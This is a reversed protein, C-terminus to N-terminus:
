RMYFLTVNGSQIFTGGATCVSEVRYVYVDQAAKTGTNRMIGNWGKSPDNAAFNQQEFVVQGWRNFIIFSKVQSLGKGRVMLVDNIGDGDPSFANPVYVQENEKCLVKYSITDTAICGYFTEIDLRYLIDNNITAVPTACNNCSLNSNPTWTYRKIPGNTITPNFPIQTGATVTSGTGLELTPLYGVAVTVFATDTFCNDDDFGIVQYTTTSAPRAIPNPINTASLGVAPSWNYRRAGSAFLQASENQPFCITDNPSVNINFPQVVTILVTDNATCGFQNTGTVIYATTQIPKAVPNACDFCSLGQQPSWSYTITGTALLSTSQGLCITTNNSAIVSPTPKVTITKYVTDACGFATRGILTVNYTGTNFYRTSVTTGTTQQGNGFNWNYTIAGPTNTLATFMFVNGVCAISDSQIAIAPIPQIPIDIQQIVSDECGSASRIRLVVRYVGAQNFPKAVNPITATTGDGFNWLISTTGFYTSSTDTFRVLTSGCQQEIVHRFGARIRDVLVSDIGRL